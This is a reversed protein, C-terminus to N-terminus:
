ASFGGDKDDDGDGTHSKKRRRNIPTRFARGRDGAAATGSSGSIQGDVKARCAAASGNHAVAAAPAVSGNRAVAVAPPARAPPPGIVGAAGVLLTRSRGPGRGRPRAVAPAVGDPPAVGAVAGVVRDDAAGPQGKDACLWVLEQVCIGADDADEEEDVEEGRGNGNGAANNMKNIVNAFEGAGEDESDSADSLGDNRKAESGGSSADIM